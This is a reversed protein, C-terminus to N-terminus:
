ENSGREFKLSKRALVQLAHYEEATITVSDGGVEVVQLGLAALFAELDVLQVGSQGSFVRSVTSVDKGIADAVKTYTADGARRLIMSELRHLKEGNNKNTM